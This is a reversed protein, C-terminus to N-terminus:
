RPIRRNAAHERLKATLEKESPPRGTFELKGEIVVGPTSLLGYELAVEPHETVDVIEYSLGPFASQQREM